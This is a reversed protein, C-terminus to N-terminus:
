QGKNNGVYFKKHLLSRSINILKELEEVAQKQRLSEENLKTLYVIKQDNLKEKRVLKKSLLISYDSHALVRDLDKVKNAEDYKQYTEFICYTVANRLESFFHNETVRIFSVEYGNKVRSIKYKDFLLYTNGEKIITFNKLEKSYEKKVFNIIKEQENLM